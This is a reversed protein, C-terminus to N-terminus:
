PVTHSLETAKLSSDCLNYVCRFSPWPNRFRTMSANAHHAPPVDTWKVENRKEVVIERRAQTAMQPKTM